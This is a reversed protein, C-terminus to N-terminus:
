VSGDVKIDLEQADDQSSALAGRGPKTEALLGEVSQRSPRPGM